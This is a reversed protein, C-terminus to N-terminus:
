PRLVDALPASRLMRHKWLIYSVVGRKWSCFLLVTSEQESPAMISGNSCKLSTIYMVDFVNGDYIYSGVFLAHDFVLFVSEVLM